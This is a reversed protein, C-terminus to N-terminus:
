VESACSTLRGCTGMFGTECAQHHVSQSGDAALQPMIIDCALVCGSPMLPRFGHRLASRVSRHRSIHDQLAAACVKPGMRRLLIDFKEPPPSRTAFHELAFLVCRKALQPADFNEAMEYVDPLNEVQLL